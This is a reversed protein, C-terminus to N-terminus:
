KQAVGRGSSFHRRKKRAQFHQLEHERRLRQLRLHRAVPDHRLDLQHRQVQRRQSRNNKHVTVLDLLILGPTM